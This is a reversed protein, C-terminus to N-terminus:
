RAKTAKWGAEDEIAEEDAVENVVADGLDGPIVTAEDDLEGLHAMELILTMTDGEGKADHDDEKDGDVVDDAGGARPDM